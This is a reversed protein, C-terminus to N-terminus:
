IPNEVCSLVQEHVMLEQKTFYGLSELINRYSKTLTLVIKRSDIIIKLEEPVGHNKCHDEPIPFNTITAKNNDNFWARVKEAVDQNPMRDFWDKIATANKLNLPIRVANYPPAPAKGYVPAFATEWLTYYQYPSKEKELKYSNHEKIKFRRLYTTEGKYISKLINREMEATRRVLGELDIRKGDMVTRIIAEMEKAAGEIINTPVTSDKMHVGKIEMSIDKYVNGEKVLRATYYHKASSTQAFVPFVFEPKMALTFLRKKEVNMNASFLALIHAISQTAMYAVAGAVAFGDDSFDLKGFYWQVWGDVSFMTSDTDSVVVSRRVMSPITAITCPSNKTLFFAKLLPRYKDVANMINICTNALIYQEEKSLKEEYDKGKGQMMTINVQHAYNVVQEDTTYLFKVPDEVPATSGRRSLDTIMERVFGENLLRLHYFDGTFVVSARETPSLTRIFAEVDKYARRGQVYLSISRRVCNITDEISPYNLRYMHMAEEIADHNTETVISILNNLALQPTFYHRNGEILRENSANSLSSISRTISTLTSHASKNSIIGGEAVFNGSVSNNKRKTADQMQHYYNFQPINGESEYKQSTKKYKKRLAVKEDLFEVIVSEKVSPHLYTTFTPVLIENQRIVGQIYNSLPVQTKEKDGNEGREYFVVQPNNFPIAKGRLKKELHAACLEYPKGTMRSAYLATQKIWDKVPSIARRYEDVPLLFSNEAM